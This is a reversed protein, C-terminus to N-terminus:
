EQVTERIIEDLTTIGDAAMAIGFERLPVMGNRRAEDRLEDTSANGLVM